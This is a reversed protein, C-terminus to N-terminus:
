TFNDLTSDGRGTLGQLRDYPSSSKCWGLLPPIPPTAPLSLGGTVLCRMCCTHRQSSIWKYGNPPLGATLWRPSPRIYQPYIYWQPTELPAYHMQFTHLQVKLTHRQAHHDEPTHPSEHRPNIGGKRSSISWMICSKDGLRICLIFCKVHGGGEKM